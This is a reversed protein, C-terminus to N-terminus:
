ASLLAGPIDVVLQTSPLKGNLFDMYLYKELNAVRTTTEKTFGMTVSANVHAQLRAYLCTCVRRAARTLRVCHALLLLRVRARAYM